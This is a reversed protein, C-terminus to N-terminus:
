AKAEKKAKRKAAAEEKKEAKKREWYDDWSIWGGYKKCYTVWLLVTEFKSDFWTRKLLSVQDMMNIDYTDKVDVLNYVGDEGSFQLGYDLEIVERKHHIGAKEFAELLLYKPHVDVKEIIEKDLLPKLVERYYRAEKESDCVFESGDQLVITKKKKAILKEEDTKSKHRYYQM